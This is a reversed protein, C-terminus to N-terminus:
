GAKQEQSATTEIRANYYGEDGLYQFSSFRAANCRIVDCNIRKEADPVLNRPSVKTLM